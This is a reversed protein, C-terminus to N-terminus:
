RRGPPVTCRKASGPPDDPAGTIAGAGSKGAGSKGVGVAGAGSIGAGSEDAGSCPPASSTAPTSTAVPASSTAPCCPVVGPGVTCRAAAGSGVTCRSTAGVGRGTGGDARGGVGGGASGGSDTHRSGTAAGSGGALSCTSRGSRVGTVIGTSTGDGVGAGSRRSGGPVGATVPAIWTGAGRVGAGASGGGAGTGSADAPAPGSRGCRGGALAGSGSLGTEDTWRAAGTGSGSVRGRGTRSWPGVSPLVVGSCTPVGGADPDTGPGASGLAGLCRRAIPRGRTCREVPAGGGSDGAPSDGSMPDDTTRGGTAPGDLTKPGTSVGRVWTSVGLGWWPVVAAGVAPSRVGGGVASACTSAPGSRGGSGIGSGLTLRVTVSSAVVVCSGGAVSRGPASAGTASAGTASASSTCSDAGSREASSTGSVPRASGSDAAGDAAAPSAGRSPAASTCRGRAPGCAGGLPPCAWCGGSVSLRWTPGAGACPGPPSLSEERSTVSGATATGWWATSVGGGSALPWVCDSPVGSLGPWGVLEGGLVDDRGSLVWRTASGWDEAGACDGVGPGGAGAAGNSTGCGGVEEPPDVACAGAAGLADDTPGSRTTLRRTASEVGGPPWLSPASPPACRGSVVWTPGVGSPGAGIGGTPCTPSVTVSASGGTWRSTPIGSTVADGTPSADRVWSAGSTSSPGPISSAGGASSAGSVPPADSAPATSGASSARGAPADGAVGGPGCLEDGDVPCNGTTSRSPLAGGDPSEPGIPPRERSRAVPRGPALVEARSTTCRSGTISRGM